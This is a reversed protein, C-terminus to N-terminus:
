LIACRKQKLSSNTLGGIIVGDIDTSNLTLHRKKELALLQQFLETINQGLKASTEVFGCGWRKALEKGTEFNIERKNIEDIKNGVLVIPVDIIAGCDGKIEKLTRIIPGLEELSQKSTVSYVLIFANGRQMALRQMAPFQHSGTTDVLHLTCVALRGQDSCNIVQQYTDEITPFYNDTFTNKIFRQVLSSKGVGGAGFLAVWYDKQQEEILLSNNNTISSPIYISSSNEITTTTTTIPTNLSSSSFMSFSIIIIILKVKIIKINYFYINNTTNSNNNNNYKITGGMKTLLSQKIHERKGASGSRRKIPTGGGGGGSSGNINGENSPGCGVSAGKREAVIRERKLSSIIYFNAPFQFKQM